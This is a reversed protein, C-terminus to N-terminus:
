GRATLRGAGLVGAVAGVGVYHNRLIVGNDVLLLVTSVAFIPSVFRRWGRLYDIRRRGGVFLGKNRHQTAVPIVLLPSGPLAVTPTLRRRASGLGWCRWINADVPGEGEPRGYHRRFQIWSLHFRWCRWRNPRFVKPGGRKVTSVLWWLRLRVVKRKVKMVGVQMVVVGALFLFCRLRGVRGSLRHSAQFGGRTGGIGIEM